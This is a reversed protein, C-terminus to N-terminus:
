GNTNQNHILEEVDGKLDIDPLISQPKWVVRTHFTSVNVPDMQEVFYATHVAMGLFHKRFDDAGHRCTIELQQDSRDAKISCRGEFTMIFQETRVNYFVIRRMVEFNDAATSLNRSAVMADSECSSAATLMALAGALGIKTVTKM